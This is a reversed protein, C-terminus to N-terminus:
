SVIEKRKIDNQSAKERKFFVKHCRLRVVICCLKRKQLNKKAKKKYKYLNTGNEKIEATNELIPIPM